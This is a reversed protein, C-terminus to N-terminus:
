GLFECQRELFLVKSRDEELTLQKDAMNIEIDMRGEKLVWAHAKEAADAEVGEANSSVQEYWQHLNYSTKLTKILMVEVSCWARQYYHQDFLTIVANCQALIM